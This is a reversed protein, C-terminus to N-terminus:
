HRERASMHVTISSEFPTHPLRHIHLAAHQQKEWELSDIEDRNDHGWKWAVIDLIVVALLFILFIIM